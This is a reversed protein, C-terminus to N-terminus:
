GIMILVRRRSFMAEDAPPKEAPPEPVSAQELERQLAALAVNPDLRVAQAFARIAARRYFGQPGATLDDRELAELHRKSIKTESAVQQLTLGRRERARRLLEGLGSVADLQSLPPSVQSPRQKERGQVPLTATAM